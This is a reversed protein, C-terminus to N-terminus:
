VLLRAFLRFLSSSVDRARDFVSLFCFLVFLQFVDLAIRQFCSL